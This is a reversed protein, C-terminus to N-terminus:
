SAVTVVWNYPSARLLSTFHDQCFRTGHHHSLPSLSRPTNKVSKSWFCRRPPSSTSSTFTSHDQGSKTAFLSHPCHPQGRILVRSPGVVIQDHYNWKSRCVTNNYWVLPGVRQQWILRYLLGLALTIKIVTRWSVTKNHHQLHIFHYLNHVMHLLRIHM